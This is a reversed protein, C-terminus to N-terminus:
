PRLRVIDKSVLVIKKAMLNHHDKKKECFSLLYERLSILDYSFILFTKFLKSVLSRSFSPDGNFFAFLSGFIYDQPLRAVSAFTLYFLTFGTFSRVAHNCSLM